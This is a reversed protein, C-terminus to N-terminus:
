QKAEVTESQSTVTRTTSSESTGWKSRMVTDVLAQGGICFLGGAGIVWLAQISVNEPAKIKTTVYVLLLVSLVLWLFGKLKRGPAISRGDGTGKQTTM